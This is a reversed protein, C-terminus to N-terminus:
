TLCFADIARRAHRIPIRALLWYCGVASGDHIEVLAGPFIGYGGSAPNKVARCWSRDSTRLKAATLSAASPLVVEGTFYVFLSFKRPIPPRIKGQKRLAQQLAVLWRPVARQGWYVAERIQAQKLVTRQRYTCSRYRDPETRKRNKLSHTAHVIR